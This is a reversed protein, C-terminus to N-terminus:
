GYPKFDVTRSIGTDQTEFSFNFGSIVKQGEVVEGSDHIIEEPFTSPV